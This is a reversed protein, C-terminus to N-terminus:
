DEARTIRLRRPRARILLFLNLAFLLPLMPNGLSHPRADRCVRPGTMM